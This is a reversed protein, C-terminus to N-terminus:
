GLFRQENHWYLAEVLPADAANDPLRIPEGHLRRYDGGLRGSVSVRYDPTVTIYGAEFLRSLDSRLLIGNNVSYHDDGIRAAALAAVAEEGTIACRRGYADLVAVQFSRRGLRPRIGADVGARAHCEHWIRRGEGSKLDYTKGQVISGAFDDPARVWDSEAFFAPQTLLICGIPFDERTDTEMDYRSRIRMLRQRMEAYSAVGSTEGCIAWAVSVPLLSFHAFCGFGAIANHPATLRFFFPEGPKLARFVDSGARWFNMEDIPPRLARLSTLWDLDTNGVYGRM